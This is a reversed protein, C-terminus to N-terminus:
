QEINKFIKFGAKILFNFGIGICGIGIALMLMGLILSFGCRSWYSLYKAVTFISGIILIVAIVFLTIAIIFAKSQEQNMEAESRKKYLIYVTISLLLFLLCLIILVENGQIYRFHIHEWFTPKATLVDMESFPDENTLFNM